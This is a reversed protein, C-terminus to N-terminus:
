KKATLSFTDLVRERRESEHLWCTRRAGHPNAERKDAANGKARVCMRITQCGTEGTRQVDVYQMSCGRGDPRGGVPAESAGESPAVDM